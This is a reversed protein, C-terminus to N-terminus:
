LTCASVIYCLYGCHIISKVKLDYMKLDCACLKGEYITTYYLNNM